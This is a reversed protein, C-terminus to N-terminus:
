DVRIVVCSSLKDHWTQRRRDWIMWFYGLLLFFASIVRGIYRILALLIGPITQDSARVVRIGVVRKGVTQGFLGETLVFYLISMTSSAFLQSDGDLGFAIGIASWPLGLLASDILLALWRRWFGSYRVHV